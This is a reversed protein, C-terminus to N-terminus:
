LINKIALFERIEEISLTKMNTIIYDNFLFSGFENCEKVIRDFLVQVPVKMPVVTLVSAFGDEFIIEEVEAGIRRFAFNLENEIIKQQLTSISSGDETFFVIFYRLKDGKGGLGTTILVKNEELFNSELLMRNAQLALYAWTYLNTDPEKLYREITRYAEVHTVSALQVLLIKKQDTTVSDDFIQEKREIIEEASLGKEHTRSCEFFELQTDNDINEESLNISDESLDLYGNLVDYINENREV